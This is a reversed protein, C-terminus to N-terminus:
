KLAVIGAATTGTSNIKVPTIPLVTGAPVTLFIVTSGDYATCALNGTTGVYVSRVDELVTSDSPTVATWLASPEIDPNNVQLSM